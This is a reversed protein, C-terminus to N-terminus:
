APATSPLFCLESVTQRYTGTYEKALYSGGAKVCFINNVIVTMYGLMAGFTPVCPNVEVDFKFSRHFTESWVPFANAFRGHPTKPPSFRFILM